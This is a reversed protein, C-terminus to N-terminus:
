PWTKRVQEIIRLNKMRFVFNYTQYNIELRSLFYFLAKPPNNVIATIDLTSLKFWSTRGELIPTLTKISGWPVRTGKAYGKSRQRSRNRKIGMVLELISNSHTM